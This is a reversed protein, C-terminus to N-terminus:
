YEVPGHIELVIPRNEWGPKMKNSKLNKFYNDIAQTVVREVERPTGEVALTSLRLDAFSSLGRLQGKELRPNVRDRLKLEGRVQYLNPDYAVMSIALRYNKRM